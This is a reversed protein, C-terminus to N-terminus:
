SPDRSGLPQSYAVRAHFIERASPQGNCSNYSAYMLDDRSDTHWFGLAHGLEHKVTTLNVAPGGSCRCWRSQPYLDIIGGGILAYGCISYNPNVDNPRDSWRVTIWGQQGVRTETGRELGALGFVGTLLGTTNELAAATENLTFTDIPRGADDVTRLYIRPAQTQRRLFTPPGELWNLAFQRYFNLNFRPDSLLPNPTPAPPATPTTPTTPPPTTAVPPAAVSPPSPATPTSTNCGACVILLAIWRRM